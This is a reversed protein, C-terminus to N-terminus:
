AARAESVAQKYQRIDEFECYVTSKSVGDAPQWEIVARLQDLSRVLVHLSPDTTALCKQAAPGESDSLIIPTSAGSFRATIVSRLHDLADRDAVTRSTPNDRLAILQQVAQRRLDNLVSKPVMAPSPIELGHVDRLEFPSDGMRGFQQCFTAEALPFK